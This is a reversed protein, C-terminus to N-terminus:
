RLLQHGLSEAPAQPARVTANPFLGGSRVELGNMRRLERHIGRLSRAVSVIAFPTVIATATIALWLAIVVLVASPGLVGLFSSTM